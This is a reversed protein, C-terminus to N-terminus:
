MRPDFVEYAELLSRLRKVEPLSIGSYGSIADILEYAADPIKEWAAAQSQSMRVTVTPVILIAGSAIYSDITGRTMRWPEGAKKSTEPHAFTVYHETRKLVELRVWKDGNFKWWYENQM